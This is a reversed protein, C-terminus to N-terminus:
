IGGNDTIDDLSYLGEILETKLKGCKCRKLIQTSPIKDALVRETLTSIQKAYIHEVKFPVYEHQWFFHKM